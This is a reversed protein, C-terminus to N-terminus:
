VYMVNEPKIDRHMINNQHLYDLASTLQYIIRATQKETYRKLKKRKANIEEFLEGGKLYELCVYVREKDEYYERVNIINPHDLSKIMYIEKKYRDLQDSKLLRKEMIKVALKDIGDKKKCLWM